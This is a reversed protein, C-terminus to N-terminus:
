QFLDHARSENKEVQSPEGLLRAAAEFEGQTFSCQGAISWEHLEIRDM